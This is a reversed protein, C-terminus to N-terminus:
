VIEGICFGEYVSTIRVTKFQRRLSINEDYRKVKVLIYNDAHGCHWEPETEREFLVRVNKGSFSELYEQQTARCIESMRNAREHKLKKPIQEPM